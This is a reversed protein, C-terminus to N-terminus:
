RGRLTADRGKLGVRAIVANEEGKLGDKLKRERGLGRM